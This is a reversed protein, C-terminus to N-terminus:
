ASSPMRSLPIHSSNLRTSKRDKINAMTINTILDSLKYIEFAASVRSNNGAKDKASIGVTYKGSNTFLTGSPYNSIVLPAPDFNDYVSFNMTVDSDYKGGDSVGTLNIIPPTYDIIFSISLSSENGARDKSYVELTYRGETNITTGSTYSLGNLLIYEVEPHPEIITILPSIPYNYYVGNEAGTISIVPPNTDADVVVPNSISTSAPPIYLFDSPSISLTQVNVTKGLKWKPDTSSSLFIGASDFEQIRFNLSDAAM